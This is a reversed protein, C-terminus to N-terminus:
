DGITVNSADLAGTNLIYDLDTYGYYFRYVNKAVAAANSSTYGYPINVTVCIEPDTYPGYSIFFAHNGRTRTEQATGTKGAIEVELDRFIQRASGEAVVARMGQQVADWTSDAIEVHGSVEPTFDELLNGEPDREALVFRVNVTETPGDKMQSPDFLTGQFFRNLQEIRQTFVEYDPSEWPDDAHEYLVHFVVPIVWETQSGEEPPEPDPSPQVAPDKTCGWGLM